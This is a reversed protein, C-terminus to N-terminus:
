DRDLAGDLFEAWALQHKEEDYNFGRLWKSDACALLCALRSFAASSTQYNEEWDNIGDTWFLTTCDSQPIVRIYCDNLSINLENM